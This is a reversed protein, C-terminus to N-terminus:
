FMVGVASQQFSHSSFAAILTDTKCFFGATQLFVVQAFSSHFVDPFLCLVFGVLDVHSGIHGLLDQRNGSRRSPVCFSQIGLLVPDDGGVPNKPLVQPIPCGCSRYALGLDRFLLGSFIVAVQFVYHALGTFCSYPYFSNWCGRQQVSSRRNRCYALVKILSVQAM